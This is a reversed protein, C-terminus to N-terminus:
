KSFLSYNWFTFIFCEGIVMKEGNVCPLSSVRLDLAVEKIVNKIAGDQPMRTETINMGSIIKIRTVVNKKLINPIKAYDQLEGDIRIRVMLCEETPDFHIDSAKRKIADLIIDNVIEVISVHEFDFTRLYM